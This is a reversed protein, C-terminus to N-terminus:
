SWTYEAQAENGAANFRLSTALSEVLQLGRGHLADVPVPAAVTNVDFGPGSDTVRITLRGGIGDQSAVNDILIAIEGDDLSALRREREDLYHMLGEPADKLSSQLGLLGHDLANTYLESLIVFIRERHRQLGQHEQVFHTVLPLPDAERLSDAAFRFQAHWKTPRKTSAFRQRYEVAGYGVGCQVEVFTLDDEQAQGDRHATVAREVANFLCPASASEFCAELRAEGFFEGSRSRAELLGDSCAFIRDGRNVDFRECQTDLQEASLVGLPLHRSCARAEIIKTEANFILVDPVGGNWVTLRRHSPDLQMITAALFRGMPLLHSVKANIETVLETISFGKETMGYFVEAVPVTGISAVLGHGTFDGLMARIGGDPTPAALLLDGNFVAMPSHVHQFMPWSLVGRDLINAFLREAVELEETWNNTSAAPSGCALPLETEPFGPVVAGQM